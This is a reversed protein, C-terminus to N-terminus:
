INSVNDICCNYQYTDSFLTTIQTIVSFAPLPIIVQMFIPEKALQVLIDYHKRLEM